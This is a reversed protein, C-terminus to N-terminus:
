ASTAAHARLTAVLEGLGRLPERKVPSPGSLDYYRALTAWDRESLLKATVTVASEPSSFYLPSHEQSPAVPASDAAHASAYGLAM